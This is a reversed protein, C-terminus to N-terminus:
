KGGGRNIEKINIGPVEKDFDLKYPPPVGAQGSLRNVEKKLEIMRLERDVSLRNFRLLDENSIRLEELQQKIKEEAHKLGTIDMGYIRFSQTEIIYHITQLFHKSGIEIERTYSKISNSHLEKVITHWNNLWPHELGCQRLDPFLEDAAPNCFNITGKSEIETIPNPNLRPFSALKQIEKEIRRRETIDHAVVLAKHSEKGSLNISVNLLGYVISGDKKRASYEVSEDIKEGALQKQIRESFRARSEEDLIETPNKSLLEERTYGLIQCLADNVSLFKPNRYDLEYIGAPAYKILAKAKAESEQLAEEAKKKEEQLRIVKIGYSLDVALESLLLVDDENFPNPERFYITLSGFVIDDDFLPLVLSAAYGRKLAEERWPTFKPDTLMNKCFTPKGTRIATGTPGRGRETDAWTIKLKELYGEEFGAYAVPRVSKYDDDEKYGIWVMEHGCDEIIIKCVDDLFEKEAKARSIAESSRRLANLTRNLQKLQNEKEKRKTIEEKLVTNSDSLEKTRNEVKGELTKNLNQIVAEAKKSETIDIVAVLCTGTNETVIGEVYVFPQNTKATQLKLECSVKTGSDFANKLFNNFATRFDQEVYQNFNNKVIFSRERNLLGAGALNTELIVGDRNLTFYGVPAFDFVTTYKDLLQEATDRAQKLEENQIELEIQHVELEHLLTSSDSENAPQKASKQKNSKLKKEAKERLLIKEEFQNKGKKM